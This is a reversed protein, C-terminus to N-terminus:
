DPIKIPHGDNYFEGMWQIDHSIKIRKTNPDYMRYAVGAYETAYGVFFADKGKDSIKSKYGIQRHTLVFGIDKIIRLHNIFGPNKQFMKTYSNETQNKRYLIGDLDTANKQMRGM